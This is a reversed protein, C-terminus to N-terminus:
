YQKKDTNTSADNFANIDVGNHLVNTKDSINPYRKIAEGKLYESCAAVLDVKDFLSQNWLRGKPEIVSVNHIHLIIKARPNFLRLIPVFQPRSHVHIIDAKRKKAQWACWLSYPM